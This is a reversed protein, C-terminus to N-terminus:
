GAAAYCAVSEAVKEAPDEGKYFDLFEPTGDAAPRMLYTLNLHDMLYYETGTERRKYYNRYADSAAKVQEETGTLGLMAPDINDTFDRLAEPTDRTPDVTIFLTDVATGMRSLIAAADANRAADTPCVDPCFTYGFYVLTPRIIVDRETVTAGNEDVLTFPGGISGGGVAGLRCADYPDGARQWQVYLWTGGVMGAMAAVAVAALMRQM